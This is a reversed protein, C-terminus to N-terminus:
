GAKREAKQRQAEQRAPCKSPDHFHHCEKCNRCYHISDAKGWLVKEAWGPDALIGRGVAVLDALGESLIQEAEEPRRIEGVCIVPIDVAKKVRAALHVRDCWASGPPALAPLGGMGQSVHILPAGEAKLWRAVELGEDLTLGGATGDVPGLRCWATMKNATDKRVQALTEMLFRARNELSGGWRDTRRNSLPSLFQSFLFGHAAHLEVADFGAEMARRAAAGFCAMIRQIGERTLEQPVEAGEENLSSPAVLPHGFFSAKTRTNRGAHHIQIAAQAGNSHIVDALARLGEIQRDEFIGLQDASLRGEPAVTTAEVIVLGPGKTCAYHAVSSPTVTADPPAIWQVMPPMCIRNSLDLTGATFPSALHQYKM